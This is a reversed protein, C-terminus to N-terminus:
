YAQGSNAIGQIAKVLTVDDELYPQHILPIFQIFVLCGIAAVWLHRASALHAELGDSM